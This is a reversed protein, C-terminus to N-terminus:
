LLTERRGGDADTRSRMEVATCELGRSLCTPVTSVRRYLASILRRIPVAMPPEVIVRLATTVNAATASAAPTKTEETAVAVPGHLLFSQESSIAAPHAPKFPMSRLAHVLATRKLQLLVSQEQVSGVSGAHPGVVLVLLEVVVLVVEVVVGVLLVVVLEVVVVEVVIISRHQTALEQKRNFGGPQKAAPPTGMPSPVQSGFGHGGGVVVVVIGAHVNRRFHPTGDPV